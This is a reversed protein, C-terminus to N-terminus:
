LQRQLKAITLAREEALKKWHHLDVMLDDVQHEPRRRSAAFMAELVRCYRRDTIKRHPRAARRRVKPYRESTAEVVGCEKPIESPECIDPNVMFWLESTYPLYKRWKKTRLDRLLDGRSAKCEVAVVRHASNPCNGVVDIHGGGVGLEKMVWTFNRLHLVRAAIDQLESHTFRHPLENHSMAPDACRLLTLGTGSTKDLPRACGSRFSPAPAPLYGLGGVGSRQVGCTQNVNRRVPTNMSFPGGPMSTESVPEHLRV